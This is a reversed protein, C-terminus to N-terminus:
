IRTRVRVRFYLRVMLGSPHPMTWMDGGASEAVFVPAQGLSPDSRLEDEFATHIAYVRDTSAKVDANGSIHTIACDVEFREDRSKAGLGAWDTDVRVSRFDGKPDGDYGIFLGDTPDGTVFPGRYVQVKPTLGAVATTAISALATLTAPVRSAAM